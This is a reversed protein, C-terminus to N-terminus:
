IYIVMFKGPLINRRRSQATQAGNNACAAWAAFVAVMVTTPARVVNDDVSDDDVDDIGIGVGMTLEYPMTVGDAVVGEVGLEVGTVFWDEEKAEEEPEEEAGVLPAEEVRRLKDALEAVPVVDAGDADRVLPAAGPRSTVPAIIAPTMAM